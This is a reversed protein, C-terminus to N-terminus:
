ISHYYLKDVGESQRSCVSQNSGPVMWRKSVTIIMAKIDSVCKDCHPLGSLGSCIQICM